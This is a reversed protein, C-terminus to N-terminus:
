DLPAVVQFDARLKLILTILNKIVIGISSNKSQKCYWCERNILLCRTVRIRTLGPCKNLGIGYVLKIPNLIPYQNVRLRGMGYFLCWKLVM